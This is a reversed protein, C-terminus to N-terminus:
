YMKTPHSALFNIIPNIFGGFPMNNKLAMATVGDTMALLVEYKFDIKFFDLKKRSTIEKLLLFLIPSINVM